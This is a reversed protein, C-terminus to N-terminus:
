SQYALFQSAGSPDIRVCVVGAEGCEGLRTTVRPLTMALRGGRHDAILACPAFWGAGWATGAASVLASIELKMKRDVIRKGDGRPGAVFGPM